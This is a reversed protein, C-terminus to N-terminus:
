WATASSCCRPWRGPASRRSRRRRAAAGVLSWRGAGAPLASTAAAVRGRRRAPPQRCRRACREHRACRRWRTTPSRARGCWSGSRRRLVTATPRGRGRDRPRRLLQAGGAPARLLTTCRPRRPADGHRRALLPANERLYSRARRGPARAADLVLEGGACALTSCAPRYGSCARPRARRSELIAAAPLAVGQLQSVVERLRDAAPRLDRGIGHWAPLFRGLVAPEVPEVERRLRALSRRRLRRLVEADRRVRPRTAPRGSGARSLEGATAGAADLSPRGRRVGLRAGVDAATFPGHTRAHRCCSGTSRTPCPISSPTPCAPRRCSASRRRPLPGADEAAIVRQEAPSGAGRVGRRESCSSRSRRRTPAAAALEARTLAGLAACCTTPPRRRDPQRGIGQLEARGRRDGRRRAARAPRRRGAARAAADRDLTLTQMRREALPADGEYMYSAIYDFLLSSRSRRRRETDVRGRGACRAGSRDRQLLQECRAARRVRRAPVRPLDRAPDPVIRLARGGAAPRAGELRQQWLPTRQGPRRRPLLLARAANERFRPAFLASGPCSPSCSRGRDGRPVLSCTPRAPPADADPLRLAIGDDSWMAQSTSASGSAVHAGRARAGVARARPAGFPSLICIRWDGLEDRFREVVITRDDPVM